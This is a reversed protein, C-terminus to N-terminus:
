VTTEEIPPNDLAYRNPGPSKLMVQAIILGIAVIVVLLIIGSLPFVSGEVKPEPVVKLVPRDTSRM